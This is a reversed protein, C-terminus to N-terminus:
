STHGEHPGIGYIDQFSSGLEGFCRFEIEPEYLSPSSPFAIGKNSIPKCSSGGDGLLRDRLVDGPGISGCVMSLGEVCQGHKGEAATVGTLFYKVYINQRTRLQMFRM